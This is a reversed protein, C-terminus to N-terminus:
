RLVWHLEEAQGGGTGGGPRAEEGSRGKRNNSESAWGESGEREKQLQKRSKPVRFKGRCQQMERALNRQRQQAQKRERERDWQYWDRVWRPGVSKAKEDIAPAFSCEEVRQAEAEARKRQNAAERQWKELVRQQARELFPKSEQSFVKKDWMQSFNLQRVSKQFQGEKERRAERLKAEKNKLHSVLKPYVKNRFKRPSFQRGCFQPSISRFLKRVQQDQEADLEIM